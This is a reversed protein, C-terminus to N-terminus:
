LPVMDIIKSYISPPDKSSRRLLTLVIGSGNRAAM